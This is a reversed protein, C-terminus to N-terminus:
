EAERRAAQRRAAQKKARAQAYLIGSVLLAFLILIAALPLLPSMAAAEAPEPAEGAHAFFNNM